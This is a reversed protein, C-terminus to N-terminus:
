NTVSDLSAEREIVKQCTMSFIARSKCDVADLLHWTSNKQYWGQVVSNGKMSFYIFNIM